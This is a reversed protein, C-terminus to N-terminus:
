VLVPVDIFWFFFFIHPSHLVGYHPRCLPVYVILAVQWSQKDLVHYACPRSLDLALSQKKRKSQLHKSTYIFM